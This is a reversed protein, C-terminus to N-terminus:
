RFAALGASTLTFNTGGADPYSFYILGSIGMGPAKSLADTIWAAQNNPGTGFSTIWVPKGYIQILPLTSFVQSFSQNGWNFGDMAAIDVYSSGPWYDAPQNGPVNPISANNVVWAWKVKNGVIDHIHKYAAVSKVAPGYWPSENLNMEHFISVITNPCVTDRFNRIVTDQSGNIISDLSIGTNEWYIFTTKGAVCPPSDNWAIFQVSVTGINANFAGYTIGSAMPMPVPAPPVVVPIPAPTPIQVPTTVVPQTRHWPHRKHRSWAFSPVPIVLLAVILVILVKNM